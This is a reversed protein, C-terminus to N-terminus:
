RVGNLYFRKRSLDTKPVNQQKCKQINVSVTYQLNRLPLFKGFNNTQVKKEKESFKNIEQSILISHFMFQFSIALFLGPLFCLLHIMISIQNWISIPQPSTNTSRELSGMLFHISICHFSYSMISLFLHHRLAIPLSEM